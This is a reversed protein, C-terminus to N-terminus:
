DYPLFMNPKTLFQRGFRRYRETNGGAILLLEQQEVDEDANSIASTQIIPTRVPTYYYRTAKM